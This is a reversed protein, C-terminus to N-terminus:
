CRIIDLLVIANSKSCGHFSSVIVYYHIISEPKTQLGIPQGEVLFWCCTEKFQCKSWCVFTQWFLFFFGVWENKM